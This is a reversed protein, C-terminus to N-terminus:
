RVGRESRGAPKRAPMRLYKLCTEHMIKEQLPNEHEYGALHLLGHVIYYYMDDEDRLQDCSIYVEGVGDLDFSIVNTPGDKRFFEKNLKSIYTDDVIIVHLDELPLKETLLVHRVITRIKRKDVMRCEAPNFIKLRLTKAPKRKKM